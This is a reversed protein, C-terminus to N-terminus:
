DIRFNVILASNFAATAHINMLKVVFSGTGPAANLKAFLIGNGTNVGTVTIVSDATVNSNNVTFVASAGAAITSSVTTIVGATKNLEVATTISTAQTIAGKETNADITVNGNGDETADIDKGGKLNLLLCM